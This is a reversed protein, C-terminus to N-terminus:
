GYGLNGAASCTTSNETTGVRTSPTSWFPRTFRSTRQHAPKTVPSVAYAQYPRFSFACSITKAVHPHFMRRWWNLGSTEIDFVLKEEHDCRELIETLMAEVQPATYAYHYDYVIGDSPARNELIDKALKFAREAEQRPEPRHSGVSKLSRSVIVKFAGCRNTRTSKQSDGFDLSQIDGSDSYSFVLPVEASDFVRDQMSSTAKKGFFREVALPGLLVIVKPQIVGMEKNLWYHCADLQVQTPTSFQGGQENRPPSCRVLNTAWVKSRDLGIGALLSDLIPREEASVFPIGNFADADLPFDGIVVLGGPATAGRGKVYCRGHTEYLSCRQCDSM